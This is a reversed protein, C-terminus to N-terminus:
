NEFALLTSRLLDAEADASSVWQDIRAGCPCAVWVAYGEPTIPQADYRLEGCGRHELAFIKIADYVGAM